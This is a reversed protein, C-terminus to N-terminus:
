PSPCDLYAKLEKLLRQRAKCVRWRAAEESIRLIQAIEAYPISEQTWLLYAERYLEPLRALAARLMQRGEDEILSEIPEPQKSALGASLPQPLQGRPGRRADLWCNKAIRFLWVRFRNEETLRPLGAWARVFAEQTVDEATDARGTLCCAWRRLREWYLDVLSAFAEQDGQRARRVWEHEHGPDM